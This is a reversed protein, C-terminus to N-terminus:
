SELEKIKTELEEIYDNKEELTQECKLIHNDAIELCSKLELVYNEFELKANNFSDIINSELKEENPGIVNDWMFRSNFEM